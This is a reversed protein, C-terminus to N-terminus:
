KGLVLYGIIAAAIWPAYKMLMNEPAQIAMPPTTIIQAPAAPRILNPLTNMINTPIVGTPAAPQMVPQATTPQDDPKQFMDFVQRGAQVVPLAKTALEALGFGIPKTAPGILGGTVGFGPAFLGTIGSVVGTGAATLGGLAATGASIVASGAGAIASGLAGVAAGVFPM